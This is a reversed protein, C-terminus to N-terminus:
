ATLPLLLENSTLARYAAALQARGRGVPEAGFKEGLRREIAPMTEGALIGRLIEVDGPQLHTEASTHQGATAARPALLQLWELLVESPDEGPRRAAVLAKISARDPVNLLLALCFRLDSEPVRRRLEMLRRQRRRERAAPHLMDVLPGIATRGAAALEAGWGETWDRCLADALVLLALHPDGLTVLARALELYAPDRIEGLVELAQIRRVTLPQRYGSDEALYPKWYGYQPMADPNNQTRIVITVSPRELHFLSHIFSMGQDIARASGAELLETAQFALEGVLLHANLREGVAFRYTTHLSAGHLVFFAGSFAHQHITTTGDLWFLAEIYFDQSAYLTIPPQGFRLSLNQPAITRLRALERLIGQFSPRSREPGLHERLCALALEPFTLEDRRRSQWVEELHRGMAEFPTMEM